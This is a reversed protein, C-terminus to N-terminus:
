QRMINYDLIYHCNGIATVVPDQDYIYKQAVRLVDDKTISDIRAFM